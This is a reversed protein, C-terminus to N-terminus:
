LCLLVQVISDMELTDLMVLATILDRPIQVRHMQNVDIWGGTANM